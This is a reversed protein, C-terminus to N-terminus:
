TGHNTGPPPLIVLKKPVVKDKHGYRQGEPGYLIGDQNQKYIGPAARVTDKTETVRGNEDKGVRLSPGYIFGDDKHEFDKIDYIYGDQGQLTTNNLRKFGNKLLQKVM